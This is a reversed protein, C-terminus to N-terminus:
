EGVTEKERERKRERSVVRGRMVVMVTVLPTMRTPPGDLPVRM